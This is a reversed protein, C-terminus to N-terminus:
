RRRRYGIGALGAFMLPLAGASPVQLSVTLRSADLVNDNDTDRFFNRSYGISAFMRYNVGSVLEVQMDSNPILAGTEVNFFFPTVSNSPLGGGATVTWQRLLTYVGTETVQFYVEASIYGIITRDWDQPTAPNNWALGHELSLTYASPSPTFASTTTQFVQWEANGATSTVTGWTGGTGSVTASQVMIDASAVQALSCCGAVFVALQHSAIMGATGKLM